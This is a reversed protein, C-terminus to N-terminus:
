ANSTVNVAVIRPKEKNLSELLKLLKQLEDLESRNKEQIEKVFAEITM